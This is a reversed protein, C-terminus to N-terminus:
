APFDLTAQGLTTMEGKQTEVSLKLNVKKVGGEEFKKTVTGKCVLTDGLFAIGRHSYDLRSLTASEGTWEVILRGLLAGQFPGHV